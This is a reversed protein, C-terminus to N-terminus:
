AKGILISAISAWDGHREFQRGKWVGGPAHGDPDFLIARCVSPFAPEALLEPLDDVFIDLKLAGIRGLKEALTLEFYAHDTAVLQRQDLFGRAAAHLDYAPGRYPTRTKHSVVFVEHGAARAAAIFDAVGPYPSVLDMRAGYVYGQLETWDDEQGISRLHDRV